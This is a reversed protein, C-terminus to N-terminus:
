RPGFLFYGKQQDFNLRDKERVYGWLTLSEDFLFSDFM